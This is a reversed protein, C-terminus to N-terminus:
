DNSRWTTERAAASARAKTSRHFRLMFARRKYESVTSRLAPQDAILGDRGVVEIGILGIQCMQAADSIAIGRHRSAAVALFRTKKVLWPKNDASVM